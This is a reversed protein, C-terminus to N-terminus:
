NIVSGVHQSHSSSTGISSVAIPLMLTTKGSLNEKLPAVEVYDIDYKKLELENQYAKDETKFYAQILTSM